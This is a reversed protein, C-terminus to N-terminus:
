WTEVSSHAARACECVYVGWWVCMSLGLVSETPGCNNVAYMDQGDNWKGSVDAAAWM